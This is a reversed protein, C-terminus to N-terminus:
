FKLLQHIFNLDVENAPIRRLTSYSKYIGPKLVIFEKGAEGIKEIGILVKSVEHSKKPDIIQVSRFGPQYAFWDHGMKPLDAPSLCSNYNITISSFGGMKRSVQIFLNFFKDRFTEIFKPKDTPADPSRDNALTTDINYIGFSKKEGYVISDYKGQATIIEFLFNKLLDDSHDFWVRGCNNGIRPGYFKGWKFRKEDEYELIYEIGGVNRRVHEKPIDEIGTLRESVFRLAQCSVEKSFGIGLTRMILEDEVPSAQRPYGLYFLNGGLSYALGVIGKQTEAALSIGPGHIVKTRKGRVWPQVTLDVKRINLPNAKKEPQHNEENKALEEYEKNYPSKIKLTLHGGELVEVVSSLVINRVSETVTKDKGSVLGYYDLDTICEASSIKYSRDHCVKLLEKFAEENVKKILSLMSLTDRVVGLREKWGTVLEVERLYLEDNM